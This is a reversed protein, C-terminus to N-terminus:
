ADEVRARFRLDIQRKGAKDARRAKSRIFHLLVLRGRSLILPADVLTDSIAAAAEKATLFGPLDTVVSVTFEHYAGAGTIDSRDRVDEAGLAVYLHPLPGPPATDYIASGVLDTLTQTAELRQFVAAQLAASMAYSM